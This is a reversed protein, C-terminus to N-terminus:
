VYVPEFRVVGGTIRAFFSQVNAVGTVHRVFAAARILDDRQSGELAAEEIGLWNRYFACGQHAILVIRSLEHVEVLFRLEEVVGQHEPPEGITGALYAPGGPLALRDYRPLGLGRQLFDDFHEGVRGDSCYVAAAHIRQPEYPILSEYVPM